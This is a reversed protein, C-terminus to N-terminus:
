KLLGGGINTRPEEQPITFLTGDEILIFDMKLQDSSEALFRLGEKTIRFRFVYKQDDTTATLTGDSVSYRGMYVYSSYFEPLGFDFRGTEFSFKLKQQKINGDPGVRYYTGGTFPKKSAAGCGCCGLLLSFCLLICLASITKKM